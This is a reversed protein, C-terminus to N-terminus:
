PNSATSTEPANTPTNFGFSVGERGGAKL